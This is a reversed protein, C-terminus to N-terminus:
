GFGVWVFFVFVAVGEAEGRQQHGMVKKHRRQVGAVTRTTTATMTTQMPKRGDGPIDLLQEEVKGLCVTVGVQGKRGWM